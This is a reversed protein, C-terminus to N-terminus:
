RYRSHSQHSGEPLADSQRNEIPLALVRGRWELQSVKSDRNGFYFPGIVSNSHSTKNKKRMVVGDVHIPDPVEPFIAFGLAFVFAQQSSVSRSGSGESVVASSSAVSAQASACGARTRITRRRM